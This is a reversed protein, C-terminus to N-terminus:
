RETNGWKHKPGCVDIAIFRGLFLGGIFRYYDENRCTDAAPIPPLQRVAYRLTYSPSTFLSHHSSFLLRPEFVTFSANVRVPNLYWTDTLTNGLCVRTSDVATESQTSRRVVM